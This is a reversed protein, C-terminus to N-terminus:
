PFRWTIKNPHILLVTKLICQIWVKRELIAQNKMTDAGNIADKAEELEVKAEELEVLVM